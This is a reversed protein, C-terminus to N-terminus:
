GKRGKYKEAQMSVPISQQSTEPQLVLQFETESESRPAKIKGVASQKLAQTWGREFRNFIMTFPYPNEYKANNAFYHLEDKLEIEDFMNSAEKEM